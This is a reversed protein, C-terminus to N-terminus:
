LFLGGPVYVIHLTRKLQQVGRKRLARVAALYQVGVSKMDQAGRAFIRGQADIEAGFPQHTWHEAFVPVVDMHSSLLVSPLLPESGLWTILVIPNKPDEAPYLTRSPLGLASAQRRLFQM